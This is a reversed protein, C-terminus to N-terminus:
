NNNDKSIIKTEFHGSRIESYSLNNKINPTYFQDMEISFHKM